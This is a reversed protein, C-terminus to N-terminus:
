LFDSEGLLVIKKSAKVKINRKSLVLQPLDRNERRVTVTVPRNLGLFNTITVTVDLDVDMLHSGLNVAALKIESASDPLVNLFKNVSTLNSNQKSNVAGSNSGGWAVSWSYSLQRGGGKIKNAQISLDECRGSHSRFVFFIM